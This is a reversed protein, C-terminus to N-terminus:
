ILFDPFSDFQVVPDFMAETYDIFWQWDESSSLLHENFKVEIDHEYCAFSM